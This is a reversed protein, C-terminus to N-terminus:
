SQVTTANGAFGLALGQPPTITAGALWPILSWDVTLVQGANAYAGTTVGISGRNGPFVGSATSTPPTGSQSWVSSTLAPEAGAM